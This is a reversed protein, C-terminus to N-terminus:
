HIKKCVTYWFLNVYVTFLLEVIRKEHDTLSGSREIFEILENSAIDEQQMFLVRDTATMTIFVNLREVLETDVSINPVGMSPPEIRNLMLWMIRALIQHWLRIIAVDWVLPSDASKCNLTFKFLDAIPLRNHCYFTTRTLVSAAPKFVLNSFCRFLLIM